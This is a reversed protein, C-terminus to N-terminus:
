VRKKKFRGICILLSNVNQIGDAIEFTILLTNYKDYGECPEEVIRVYVKAETIASKGSACNETSAANSNFRIRNYNFGTNSQRSTNQISNLRAPSPSSSMRERLEGILAKDVIQKCGPCKQTKQNGFYNLICHQCYVSTCAQNACAVLQSGNELQCFLCCSGSSKELQRFYNATSTPVSGGGGGHEEGIQKIHHRTNENSYSSSNSITRAKNGVQKKKGGQKEDLNRAKSSSTQENLSILRIGDRAVANGDKIQITISLSGPATSSLYSADNEDNSAPESSSTQVTEDLEEVVKEAPSQGVLEGTNSKVPLCESLLRSMPSLPTAWTSESYNDTYNIFTDCLTRVTESELSTICITRLTTDTDISSDILQTYLLHACLEVPLDFAGGISSASVPIALSALQLKPDLAQKM